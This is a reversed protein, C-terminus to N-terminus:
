SSGVTEENKLVMMNGDVLEKVFARIDNEAQERTTDFEQTIADAIAALTHRGDAMSWVRSGVENLVVVQGSDSLIVLAEGDIVRSAVQPHPSPYVSNLDM